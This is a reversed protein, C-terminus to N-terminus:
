KLKVVFISIENLLFTNNHKTQKNMRLNPKKNRKGFYNYFNEKWRTELFFVKTTFHKRQNPNM